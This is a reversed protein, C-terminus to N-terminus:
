RSGTGRIRLWHALVSRGLATDGLPGCAEQLFFIDAAENAEIFVPGEPTIAIDLGLTVHPQLSLAARRALELTEHWMPLTVSAFRVGTDPHVAFSGRGYEGKTLGARYLRGSEMEVGIAIGGQSYNDIVATGRGFRHCAAILTCRGDEIFTAVRLTNLAGPYVSEVLPHNRLVPQLVVNRRSGFWTEDIESALISFAGIGARADIPKVFLSGGRERLAAVAAGATVTSADGGRLTGDADISFLTEVCRVGAGGVIRTTERKDNLMRVRDRPNHDRRFRQMLRAPLYDIYDAGASREYLRHKLYHYPFCHYKARLARAELWQQGPPKRDRSTLYPRIETALFERYQELM